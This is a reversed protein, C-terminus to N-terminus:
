KKWLRGMLGRIRQKRPNEVVVYKGEEVVFSVGERAEFPLDELPINYMTRDDGECVAYEGEVRDITYM